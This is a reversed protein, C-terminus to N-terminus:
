VAAEIKIPENEFAISHFERFVTGCTPCADNHIKHDGMYVAKRKFEKGCFRCKETENVSLTMLFGSDNALWIMFNNGERDKYM